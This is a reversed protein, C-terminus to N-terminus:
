RTCRAPPRPSSSRRPARQCTTRSCARRAPRMGEFRQDLSSSSAKTVPPRLRRRGAAPVAPSGRPRPGAPPDAGCPRCRRPDVESPGRRLPEVGPDSRPTWRPRTMSVAQGSPSAGNPTSMSPRPTPPRPTPTRPTPTSKPPDGHVPRVAAAQQPRPQTRPASAPSRPEAAPTPAAPRSLALIILLNSRRQRRGSALTRGPRAASLRQHACDPAQRQHLRSTRTLRRSSGQAM